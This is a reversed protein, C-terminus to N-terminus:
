SEGRREGPRPEDDDSLSRRDIERTEDEETGTEGPRLVATDDEALPGHEVRVEEEPVPGSEGEEHTRSSPSVETYGRERAGPRLEGSPMTRPEPATTEDGGSEIAGRRGNGSDPFIVDSITANCEVVRLGTMSEVREVIRRRVEEVTELFNRGYEVGMTLDIAVEIKGVNVSVGRTQSESGTIGGLLGGATRSTSGGMHVGDVEGAAMGAIRAVVGDKITTVGRESVLPSQTQRQEVESVTESEQAPRVEGKAATGWTEGFGAGAVRRRAITVLTVPGPGPFPIAEGERGTSDLPLGPAARACTARM